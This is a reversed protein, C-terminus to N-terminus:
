CKIKVNYGNGGGVLVEYHWSDRLPDDIFLLQDRSSIASATFDGELSTLEVTSELDETGIVQITGASSETIILMQKFEQELGQVLIEQYKNKTNDGNDARVLVYYHGSELLPDDIFLRTNLNFNTQGPYFVEAPSVPNFNSDTLKVQVSVLNKEDTITAQVEITDYVSYLALHEPAQVEIVPISSSEEKRCASLLIIFSAFLYINKM